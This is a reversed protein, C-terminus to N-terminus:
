VGISVRQKKPLPPPERRVHYLMADDARGDAGAAFGGDSCHSLSDAESHLAALHSSSSSSIMGNEELRHRHRELRRCTSYYRNKIANDTSRRM